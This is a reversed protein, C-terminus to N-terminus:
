RFFSRLKGRRLLLFDLAGHLHAGAAAFGGGSVGRGSFICLFISKPLSVWLQLLIAVLRVGGRLNNSALYLRNRSNYYIKSYSDRSTVLSGTHYVTAFPYYWIDYGKRTFQLSWDLEECYLFYDERMLGVAELAARRVMMAAGHAFPTLRSEDVLSSSVRGHFPSEIRYLYRDRLLYGGYQVLNPAASYVIKPSLVSVSNLEMFDIIDDFISGRLETDNNLLMVYEGGSVRIGVNNGGAFGLNNDNYLVRVVGENSAYVSSLEKLLGIDEPESKNDVVIIEYDDRLRSSGELAGVVSAIMNFTAAAANYNVTIISLKM